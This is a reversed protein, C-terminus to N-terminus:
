ALDVLCNSLLLEHDVTDFAACMDLLLLIVCHQNGIACLIDNQVKELATETSHYSKYASQFLEEIGNDRLYDTLQCAVAKETIKSVFKLNSIPRFNPFIEFDLSDKKLKPKVMAEKLQTPMTATEMSLNIIKTLLPLLTDISGKLVTAPFPDLDCSKSSSSNILSSVASETTDQFETLEMNCAPTEPYPNIVSSCRRRKKKKENISDNYWVAFPRLTVTRRKITAHIDLINKLTNEYEDILTPLDTYNDASILASKKLDNCLCDMDISRLKRYEVEVQELPPKKLRLKCHVASHDSLLPDKIEVGTVFDDDSRSIELDLTHGHKHTSMNIYISRNSFTTLDRQMQTM